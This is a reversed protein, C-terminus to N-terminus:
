ATVRGRMVGMFGIASALLWVASPGPVAAIDGPRVAWAFFPSGMNAESQIGQNFIFRWTGSTPCRMTAATCTWYISPRYHFPRYEVDLM